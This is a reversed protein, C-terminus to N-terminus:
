ATASPRPSGCCRTRRGAIPQDGSTSSDRRRAGARRHAAGVELRELALPHDGRVVGVGIRPGALEQHGYRAGCPMPAMSSTGSRAPRDSRDAHEAGLVDAPGARPRDVLLVEGDRGGVQDGHRHGVVLAALRQRPQGVALGARPQDEVGRVVREDAHVGVALMTVQFACASAVKPQVRSSASPRLRASVIMGGANRSACRRPM